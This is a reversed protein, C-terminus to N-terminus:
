SSIPLIPRDYPRSVSNKPLWRSLESLHNTSVTLSNPTTHHDDPCAIAMKKPVVLRRRVELDVFAVHVFNTQRHDYDAAIDRDRDGLVVVNNKWTVAKNWSGGSSMVLGADVKQWVLPIAKSTSPSSSPSSKGLDLAWIAFCSTTSSLFTGSVILHNGVISGTPFRLGPPLSTAGTM